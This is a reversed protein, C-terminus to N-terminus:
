PSRREIKPEMEEFRKRIEGRTRYYGHEEEDEEEIEKFSSFLLPFDDADLGYLHCMLAELQWRLEERDTHGPESYSYPPDAAGLRRAIDALDGSSGSLRLVIEDVVDGIRRGEYTWNQFRDIPPAPLQKAVYQSLNEGGIKQRAVFDCAYSNLSALLWCVQESELDLIHNISDETPLPPLLAAIVTRRNTANTVKRLVVHWDDDNWKRTYEAREVWYPPEVHFKPDNREALTTERPKKNRVRENGVGQYTAFRHNFQHVMKSEFIPLWVSGDWDYPPGETVSTEDDFEWRRRFLHSDDGANFMRKLRIQWSSSAEDERRLVDSDRYIKLTLDAHESDRFTPCNGTNPNVRRIDGPELQYIRESTLEDPTELYFALDFEEVSKGEGVMTLLCFKKSRHVGAFLERRNIFDFLSRIQKNEVLHQFFLKTTEDYAIGTPVVIGSSGQPDIEKLAVESFPAYLNVKRRSTLPFRGSKKVFRKQADKSYEAEKYSAYLSPDEEALAEIEEDREAQTLGSDAIDPAKVAFFESDKMELTEWPPNGLICDFGGEVYVLPFELSWHFFREENSIEEAKDKLYRLEDETPDPNARLKRITKPTPYAEETGDMPWFFAATWADHTLIEAQYEPINRLRRYLERKTEVDEIAEEELEDLKRALDLVGDREVGWNQLSASNSGKTLQKNENRVRKRIRNGPHWDRGQSKEYADQPLGGEVLGSTTGILSNGCKIRHDLFGLPRDTTATDIWLSVKALEVAMPNVDVGYICHQLVDRRAERITAQPPYDTESRIEALRRGLYNTAAILFAASGCAPDCVQMGLLAQEQETRSDGAEDLRQGTVPALASDILEQVLRQDTYYSGTEKRTAGRSDLFFQGPQVVREDLHIRDEAVRPVFELLSEYIAGVEEVGLDAYSIRQRVGESEILTLRSVTRLLSGNDCERGDLLDLYDRDFLMGNFAPVDLEESGHEALRFTAKLGQWLDTHNDRVGGRKEARERLRTVSYEDTYLSDRGPMMGRQEAYLLFLLRYVVMLLERFYSRAAGEGEEQLRNRLEADLFGNGLIEIAEVVNDQLDQGVKIGTARSTEYLMELPTSVAEAKDGESEDAEARQIAEAVARSPEDESRPVFRSAHCLRYLARFDAFNRSEFINELDFEIYGRTYTHFFDRLLRLRVGDTM